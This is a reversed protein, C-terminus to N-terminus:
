YLQVVLAYNMNMPFSFRGRRNEQIKLDSMLAPFQLKDLQMSGNAKAM